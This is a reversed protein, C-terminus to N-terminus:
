GEMIVEITAPVKVLHQLRRKAIATAEKWSRGSGCNFWFNLGFSGWRITHNKGPHENPCDTVHFEGGSKKGGDWYGYQPDKFTLKLIPKGM